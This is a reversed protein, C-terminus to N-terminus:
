KGIRRRNPLVDPDKLCCQIGFINETWFYDEAEIKAKKEEEEEEEEGKKEQKEQKEQKEEEKEKEEEEKDEEKDKEKDLTKGVSVDLVSFCSVVGYWTGPDVEAM